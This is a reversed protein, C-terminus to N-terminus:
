KGLVLAYTPVGNDQFSIQGATITYSPILAKRDLPPANLFWFTVSYQSFLSTEIAFTQVGGGNPGIYFLGLQSWTTTSSDYMLQGSPKYVQLGYTM